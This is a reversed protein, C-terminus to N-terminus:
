QELEERTELGVSVTTGSGTASTISITHGLKTLIQKCLYLGIGTARKDARGNYGTYGWEFVRPLDSSAIGIGTDSIVLTRPSVVEIHIEGANTYKLANSLLQEIVFALWKEDTLVKCSIPELVLKIKKRIFLPAYKRVAQKVIDDLEYQGIVYDTSDGDLRLYSLVMEVYQEIKFLETLLQQNQESDQEQLLLRMASIPTKIQHAWMTYYSLMEQQRRDAKAGAQINNQQMQELLETYDQELLNRPAPLQEINFAIEERLRHLLRHRRVYHYFGIAVFVVGVCICLLAAYLVTQVQQQYLLFVGAFIGAFLCFLVCGMWHQKIYCGFMRLMNM